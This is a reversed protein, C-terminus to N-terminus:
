DAIPQMGDPLQPTTALRILADLKAEIRDLQADMSTTRADIQDCRADIADCREEMLTKVAQSEAKVTDRIERHSVGDNWWWFTYGAGGFFALVLTTSFIKKITKMLHRM